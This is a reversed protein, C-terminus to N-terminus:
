VPEVNEAPIWGRQGQRDACWLWGSEEDNVTLEEGEEASLETADYDRRALGIQGMPEIYAGPVWGSQGQRTTCWLWGPWDSERDSLDLKEGAKLILPDPFPTQYATVVRVTQGPKYHHTPM